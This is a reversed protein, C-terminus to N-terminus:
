RRPTSALALGKKAGRGTADERGKTALLGALRAGDGPGLIQWDLRARSAIEAFVPDVVGEQALTVAEAGPAVSLSKVLVLAAGGLREALRAALGDSTISWDAPIRRDRAALRAPLWVPVRERAWAQRMAKLTEAAVLRPELALMAVAMQHMALIAMRHAAADSFGLERQARRVADAFPGGGPVVVLPRRARGVIALVDGLRGTGALSGGIKVVLATM